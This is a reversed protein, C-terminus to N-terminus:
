SLEARPQPQLLPLSHQTECLMEVVAASPPVPPASGGVAARARARYRCRAAAAALAALRIVGPVVGLAILRTAAGAARSPTRCEEHQSAHELRLRRRHAEANKATGRAKGLRQGWTAVDLQQTRDRALM